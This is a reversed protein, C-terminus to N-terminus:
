NVYFHLYENLTEYIKAAKKSKFVINDRIHKKYLTITKRDKDLEISKITKYHAVKSNNGNFLRIHMQNNLQLKYKDNNYIVDFVPLIQCCTHCYNNFGDDYINNFTTYSM